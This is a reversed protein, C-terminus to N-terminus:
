FIIMHRLAVYPAMRYAVDFEVHRGGRRQRVKWTATWSQTSKAHRKSGRSYRGFKMEREECDKREGGKRNM